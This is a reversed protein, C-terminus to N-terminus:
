AAEQHKSIAPLYLLPLCSSNHPIPMPRFCLVYDDNVHEAHESEFSPFLKRTSQLSRNPNHDVLLDFKYDVM